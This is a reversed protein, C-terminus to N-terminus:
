EQSHASYIGLQVHVSTDCARGLQLFVKSHSIVCNLCQQSRIIIYPRSVPRGVIIASYCTAHSASRARPHARIIFLSFFGGARVLIEFHASVFSPNLNAQGLPTTSSTCECGDWSLDGSDCERVYERM